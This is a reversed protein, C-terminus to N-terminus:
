QWTIVIFNIRKNPWLHGWVECAMVVAYLEKWQVSHQQLAQPWRAQIWHGNWFAGYGIESTYLCMDPYHSWDPELFFATGNWTSAFTLWWHIDLASDWSNDQPISAIQEDADLHIGLFTM